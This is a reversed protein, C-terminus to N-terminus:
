IYNSQPQKKQPPPSPNEGARLMTTASPLTETSSLALAKDPSGSGTELGNNAQLIETCCKSCSQFDEHSPTGFESAMDNMYTNNLQRILTM